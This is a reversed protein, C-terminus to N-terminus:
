HQKRGVSLGPKLVSPPVGQALLSRAPPGGHTEGRATLLRGRGTGSCWQFARNSTRGFSSVRLERACNQFTGPEEFQDRTLGLITLITNAGPPRKAADASVM